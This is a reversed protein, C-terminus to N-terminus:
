WPVLVLKGITQRSEILRHAEAAQELPLVAGIQPKLRGALVHGILEDLTDAILRTMDAVRALPPSTGYRDVIARRMADAAVGPAEAAIAFRMRGVPHIPILDYRLVVGDNDLTADVRVDEFRGLSFLHAISSRVQSMSLPLGPVTEVVQTLV